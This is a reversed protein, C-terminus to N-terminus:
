KGFREPQASEGVVVLGDLVVVCGDAYAHVLIEILASRDMSLFHLNHLVDRRYLRVSSTLDHVGMDLLGSVFRNFAPWRLHTTLSHGPVCRSAIIVDAERRRNWLQDFCNEIGTVRTNWTLIYSGTASELGKL